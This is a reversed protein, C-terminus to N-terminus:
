QIATHFHFIALIESGANQYNHAFYLDLKTIFLVYNIETFMIRCKIDKTLMKIKMSLKWSPKKGTLFVRKFFNM